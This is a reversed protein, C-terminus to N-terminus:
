LSLMCLCMMSIPSHCHSITSSSLHHSSTLCHHMGQRHRVVEDGTDNLEVVLGYRGMGAEEGDAAAAGAGEVATDVWSTRALQVM